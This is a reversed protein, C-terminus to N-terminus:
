AWSTVMVFPALVLLHRLDFGANEPVMSIRASWARFRSWRVMKLGKPRRSSQWRLWKSM